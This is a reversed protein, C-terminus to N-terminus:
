QRTRSRIPPKRRFYLGLGFAAADFMAMRSDESMWAKRPPPLHPALEPFHEAIVTAVGHKTTAGAARFLEQVQERSVRAVEVGHSSADATVAEILERARSRRRSNRNKVDEVVFVDPTYRSVLERVLQLSHESDAHETDKTGWDILSAPGELVVFGFGRNTPDIALVRQEDDKKITM